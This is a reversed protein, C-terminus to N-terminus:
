THCLKTVCLIQCTPVVLSTSQLEQSGSNKKPPPDVLSIFSFYEGAVGSEKFM